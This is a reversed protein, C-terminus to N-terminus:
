FFFLQDNWNFIFCHLRYNMQLCAETKVVWFDIFLLIINNRHCAQSISKIQCICLKALFMIELNLEKKNNNQNRIKM